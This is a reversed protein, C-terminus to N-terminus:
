SSGKMLNPLWLAIQPFIMVLGMGAFHLFWFPICGKVIDSLSVDPPVISKMVFLNLGVPPTITALELNILLIIGFWVPDFKLLLIIPMFIPTTIFLISGPDMFMGLVFILLQMIILLVWRSVPLSCVSEALKMIIGHYAFVQTMLQAGILIIFIMSTTQATKMIAQRFKPWTLQRYLGAVFITGLAGLAAAESPTAVGTYITGLVSFIIIIVPLLHRVLEIRQKWTVKHQSPALLPNLIVRIVIYLMFLISLLFGPMFGAFFLRGISVHGLAGYIVMLISPPILIALAAGSAISGTALGRNYNRRLMEPVASSGIAATTAPSFGTVAGFITCTGVSSIALGGPLWGLWADMAEFAKSGIDSILIVEGMLIFLPVAILLFNATANFSTIGAILGGRLGLTYFLGGLGVLCMSFGIPMGMALLLLVAGFIVLLGFWWEM